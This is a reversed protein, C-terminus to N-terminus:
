LIPIRNQRSEFITNEVPNFSPHISSIVLQGISRLSSALTPLHHTLLTVKGIPRSAQPIPSHDPALSEESVEGLQKNKNFIKMDPERQENGLKEEIMRNSCLWARVLCDADHGIRAEEAGGGGEEVDEEENEVWLM